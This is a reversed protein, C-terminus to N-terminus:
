RREEKRGVLGELLQQCAISGFLVVRAAVHEGGGCTERERERERERESV